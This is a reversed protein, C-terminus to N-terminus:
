SLNIAHAESETIQAADKEAEILSCVLILSSAASWKADCWQVDSDNDNMDRKLKRLTEPLEYYYFGDYLGAIMNRLNWDKDFIFVREASSVASLMEQSFLQHRNFNFYTKM